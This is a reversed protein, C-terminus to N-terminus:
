GPLLRIVPTTVRLAGVPVVEGSLGVAGVLPGLLWGHVAQRGREELVLTLPIDAAPLGLVFACWDLPHRAGFVLAVCATTATRTADVEEDLLLLRMADLLGLCFGHFILEHPHLHVILVHLCFEVLQWLM